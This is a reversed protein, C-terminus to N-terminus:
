AGKGVLYVATAALIYGAIQYSNPLGGTWIFKAVSAVVPFLTVITTITLLSGGSTYASVYAYDALFWILGTLLALWLFIGNPFVIAEGTLRMSGIRILSLPLMVLYGLVLISITSFKSLKMDMMVNQGAYLIVALCALLVPKM